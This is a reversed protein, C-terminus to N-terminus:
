LNGHQGRIVAERYGILTPSITAPVPGVGVGSIRIRIVQGGEYRVGLLPVGSLARGGGPTTFGAIPVPDPMYEYGHSDYLQLFLNPSTQTTGVVTRDFKVTISQLIFPSGVPVTFFMDVFPAVLAVKGKGILFLRPGVTVRGNRYNRDM